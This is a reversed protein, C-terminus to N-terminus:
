WTLEEDLHWAPRESSFGTVSDDFIQHTEIKQTGDPLRTWFLAQVPKTCLAFEQQANSNGFETVAPGDAQALPVHSLLIYFCTMCGVFAFRLSTWRKPVRLVQRVLGM